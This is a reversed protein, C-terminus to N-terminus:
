FDESPPTYYMAAAGGPPAIMAECKHLPEAIDFHTGDMESITRDILEQNWRQFADVGDVSHAPDEDLFAIAEDVSAGPRIENAVRAMEREIRHLEEVGWAYTEFLEPFDPNQFNGIWDPVGFHCLDVIPTIGRRGLEAFTLDAFDWDFRGPGLYTHHM